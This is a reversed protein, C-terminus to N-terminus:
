LFLWLRYGKWFNNCFLFTTNKISLGVGLSLVANYGFLNLQSFVIEKLFVISMYSELFCLPFFSLLCVVVFISVNSDLFQSLGGVIPLFFVNVVPLCFNLSFLTMTLVPKCLCSNDDVRRHLSEVILSCRM